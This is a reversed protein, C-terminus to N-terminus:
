HSLQDQLDFLKTWIYNQPQQVNCTKFNFYIIVIDKHSKCIQLGTVNTEKINLM